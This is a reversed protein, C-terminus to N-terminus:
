ESGRASVRARPGSQQSMVADENLQHWIPFGHSASTVAWRPAFSEGPIRQAERAAVADDLALVILAIYFLLALTLSLTWETGPGLNPWM